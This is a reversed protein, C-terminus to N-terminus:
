QRLRNQEEVSGTKNSKKARLKNNGFNRAYTITVISTEFDLYIRTNLNESPIDSTLKYRNTKFIDSYSLRLNSNNFKKEIGFDLAGVAAMELIGFYQPSLYFGSLEATISKSIKFKQAGNFSFNMISFTKPDGLYIARIESMSFINNLQIEWWPTIQIPFSLVFSYNKSYDLNEATSVQKNDKTIRPQFLTISNKDYSYQLSMLISKHRYELKLADTFSPLLSVNGSYFNNPDNFIVFPALQFFSPRAIRRSYSSVWSNKDNIKHILFASPFWNGYNRDVLNQESRTDLNTRTHEYRLGAQLEFKSSAKFTASTFGAIINEYMNAFVTLEDDDVWIEDELNDVMIDNRLRTYSEKAGAEIFIKDNLNGSIDM